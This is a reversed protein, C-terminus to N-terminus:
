RALGPRVIYGIWVLITTEGVLCVCMDCANSIHLPHANELPKDGVALVVMAEGNNVYTYNGSPIWGIGDESEVVTATAFFGEEAEEYGPLSLRILAGICLPPWVTREKLKWMETSSIEKM